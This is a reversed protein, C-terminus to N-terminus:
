IAAEAGPAARAGLPLVFAVRSAFPVFGLREYLRMAPGNGQDVACTVEGLRTRRVQGIAWQLLPKALGRGRLAPSLGLYVLEVSNQSPVPSLLCCGHPEGDLLVLWWLGPDFVGTARHSDLVDGTERLGCLAPCDLTQEYSRDLAALLAGRDPEGPGVGRVPRVVVGPPWPPREAAKPEGPLVLPRRLYALDGVRIMGARELSEILWRELPEPLAQLLAVRRGLVGPLDKACARIVAALDNRQEDAEGCSAQPGPRSAFLMGTRGSGPVVLCLQRLLRPHHPGPDEIMAWALDFDIGTEPAAAILRDAARDGAAGQAAVLRRAAAYRLEGPLREIRRGPPPGPLEATQSKMVTMPPQDRGM